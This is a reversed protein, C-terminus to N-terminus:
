EKWPEEHDPFILKSWPEPQIPKESEEIIEFEGKENIKAIRSNLWTHNSEDIKVKGQPADFELGKFAELVAGSDYPDSSKELAKALLHTGFYVMETFVTVPEDKGYKEQYAEVFKQNEPTDITQFYAQSSYHGQAAEKSISAIDTEVAVPTVIPIEEPDFGYEAYQSIFASISDGVLTSFIVDPKAKRINNFVASFENHGMPVYEEGLVKGGEMKLLEDVQNNIQVPYIYDNGVYYFNKGLNNTIWPIFDQLQQNPVAGVYIVNKSYEEGEYFSPYILVSNNQEVIPLVAQRSASTHSGIIAAVEDEMILKRAKTAAESPDSNYDEQVPILKKGNIGGAENIEEIALLVSNAQPTESVAMNGSLSFLVGVKIGDEDSSNSSTGKNGCASLVLLSLICLLTFMKTVKSM